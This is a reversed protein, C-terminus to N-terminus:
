LKVIEAETAGAGDQPCREEEAPQHLEHGAHLLKLRSVVKTESCETRIAGEPHSEAANQQAGMEADELWRCGVEAPEENHKRQNRCDEENTGNSQGASVGDQEKRQQEAEDKEIDTM